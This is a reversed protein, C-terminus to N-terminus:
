STARRGSSCYCSCGAAPNSHPSSQSRPPSESTSAPDAPTYGSSSSSATFPSSKFSNHSSLPTQTVLKARPQHLLRILPLYLSQTPPQFQSRHFSCAIDSIMASNFFFKTPGPAILPSCHFSFPLQSPNCSPVSLMICQIISWM